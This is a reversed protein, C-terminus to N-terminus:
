KARLDDLSHPVDGNTDMFEYIARMQPVDLESWSKVGYIAKAAQSLNPHGQKGAPSGPLDLEQARAHALRNMEFKDIEPLPAMQQRTPLASESMAEPPPMVGTKNPIEATERSVAPPAEGAPTAAVQPPIAAGQTSTSPESESPAEIPEPSPMPEGTPVKRGSAFQSPIPEIPAPINAEPPPSNAWIPTRPTPPPMMPEAPEGTGPAFGRAFSPPETPPEISSPTNAEPPPMGRQAWQWLPERPTPEPIPEPPPAPGVRRGSRMPGPRLNGEIDMGMPPEKPIVQPPAYPQPEPAEMGVVDGKTAGRWVPPPVDLPLPNATRYAKAGEAGATGIKELAEIPARLPKFVNLDKAAELAAGPAAKAAGKAFAKATGATRKLSGKGTVPVGPEDLTEPGTLKGLASTLGVEGVASGAAGAIDGQAVQGAISEGPVQPAGPLGKNSNQTVWSKPDTVYTKIEKAPGTIPSVIGSAFRSAASGQPEPPTLGATGAARNAQQLEPHSKIYASREAPNNGPVLHGPQSGPIPTDIGPIGQPKRAEDALASYDVTGTAPSRAQRALADYNIPQTAM